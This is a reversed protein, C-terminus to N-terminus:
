SNASSSSSSCSGLTRALGMHMMDHTIVSVHGPLVAGPETYGVSQAAAAAARALQAHTIVSVHGPLVAGPEELGCHIKRCPVDVQLWYAAQV